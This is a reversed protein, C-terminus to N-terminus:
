RSARIAAVSINNALRLITLRKDDSSSARCTAPSVALYVLAANKRRLTDSPVSLRRPHTKRLPSRQRGLHPDGGVAATELFGPGQPL